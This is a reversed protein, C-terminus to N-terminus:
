SVEVYTGKSTLVTSNYNNVCLPNETDPPMLYPVHYAFVEKKSFIFVNDSKRGIVFAKNYNPPMVCPPSGGSVCQFTIDQNVFCIYSFDAPLNIKFRNSSGPEYYYYRQVDKSLGTIYDAAQVDKAVNLLKYVEYIGWALILAGVIMAFIMVLPQAMLQGRKKM